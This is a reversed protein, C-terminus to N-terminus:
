SRSMVVPRRAGTEQVEGRWRGDGSPELRLTLGGASTGDNFRVVLAQGERVISDLLGTGKRGARLDRWAGDIAVLDGPDNLLLTFMPAGDPGHVVWQGDLPGMLSQEAQFAGRVGRDYYREMEDPPAEYSRRYEEITVPRDIQVQPPAYPIPAVPTMRPMVFPRVVPRRPAAVVAEEAAEGEEADETSAPAPTTAPPPATPLRVVAEGASAPAAGAPTSADQGLALLAAFLLSTFV